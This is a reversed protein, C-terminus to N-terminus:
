LTDASRTRHFVASMWLEVRIEPYLRDLDYSIVLQEFHINKLPFTHVKYSLLAKIAKHDAFLHDHM